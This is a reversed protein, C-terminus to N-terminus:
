IHFCVDLPMAPLLFPDLRASAELSSNNMKSFSSLFAPFLSFIAIKKLTLSKFLEVIKM